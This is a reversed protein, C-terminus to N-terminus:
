GASPDHLAVRNGVELGSQIEVNRGNTSGITVEVKTTKPGDVLLCHHKGGESFVALVPVQLCEPVSDAKVTVRCNMGSRLQPYSKDYKGLVNFQRV